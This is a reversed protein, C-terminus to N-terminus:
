DTWDDEDLLSRSKPSSGTNAAAKQKKAMFRSALPAGGIRQRMLRYAIEPDLNYEKIYAMRTLHEGVASVYIPEGIVPTIKGAPLIWEFNDPPICDLWENDDNVLEDPNVLNVAGCNQCIFKKM